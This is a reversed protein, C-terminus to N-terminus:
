TKDGNLPMACFVIKELSKTRCEEPSLRRFSFFLIEISKTILSFSSSQNNLHILPNLSKKSPYIPKCSKICVAELAFLHFSSRGFSFITFKGDSYNKACIPNDLLHQGIASQSFMVPILSKSFQTSINRSNPIQGTRIFKPVYQRIKDQLRQSTRGIYRSDCHCLFNYVVNSLLSAPLVDKKIAPFLTIKVDRGSNGAILFFTNGAESSCREM